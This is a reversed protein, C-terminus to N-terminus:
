LVGALWVCSCCRPVAVSRCPSLRQTRATLLPFVARQMCWWRVVHAAPSWAWAGRGACVGRRTLWGFDCPSPSELFRQGLTVQTACFLGSSPRWPLPCCLGPGQPCAAWEWCPRCTGSPVSCAGEQRLGAAWGNGEEGRWTGAPPRMSWVPGSPFWVSRPSGRLSPAWPPRSAGTGRRLLSLGTQFHRPHGQVLPLDM